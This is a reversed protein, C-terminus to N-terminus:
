RFRGVGGRSAVTGALRHASVGIGMGGQVIPLLRRGALTMTQLGSAALLARLSAPVAATANDGPQPGPPGPPHPPAPAPTSM